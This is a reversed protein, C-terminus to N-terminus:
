GIVQLRGNRVGLTLEGKLMALLAEGAVVRRWGHVVPVDEGLLLKELDRRGAVAAPSVDNDRCCARLLSMMADVVEDQEPALRPGESITPWQDRPTDRGERVAALVADGHRRVFREDVGRIRELRPRSDPQQRAVDLLVEDRMVWRRPRDSSQAERERWAAVAQLVALQGGKLRGAGKIRLWALEPPNTYRAPDSMATFDEALWAERNLERLRDRQRHYVQCLYRVDDAAYRLEDPELPRRCWETRAHAKALDIGLEAKVLAGYGVQDGGGLVTAALQTDFIPAPVQGTMAFFIELDQHAAHLVKVINPDYLLALLPSLDPLELPDICAVVDDNAIQLLCLRPLYTKERLFETDLTLWESGRLQDCLRDLAEPTDIYLDTM